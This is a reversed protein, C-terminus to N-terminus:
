HTWLLAAYWVTRDTDNRHQLGPGVSAALHFHENIDWTAGVNFYTAAHGGRTDATQHFLEAGVQLRDTIAYALAAGLMCFDKSDGGRNLECGGGGFMTWAGSTRQLWLPLMLSAHNDGVASSGAPLVVTPYFAADVGADQQHLFKYKLGLEINGVGTASGGGAPSVWNIPVVASLQLDPAAGYNFDVGLSGDRGDRASAGESFFYIEYHGSDTPEPDDTLFPPGALAPVATLALLIAAFALTAWPRPRIRRTCAAARHGRAPNERSTIM